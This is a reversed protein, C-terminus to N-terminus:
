ENGFLMEAVTGIEQMDRQILGCRKWVYPRAIVRFVLDERARLRFETDESVAEFHAITAHEWDGTAPNRMELEINSADPENIRLQTCKTRDELNGPYFVSSVAGAQIYHRNKYKVTPPVADDFVVGFASATSLALLGLVGYQLPSM